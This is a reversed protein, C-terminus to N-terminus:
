LITGLENIDSSIFDIDTEFKLENRSEEWQLNKFVVELTLTFLKQSIFDEKRIKIKGIKFNEDIVVQLTAYKYITEILRSYISNIRAGDPVSM